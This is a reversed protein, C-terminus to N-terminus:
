LERRLFKEITLVTRKYDTAAEGGKRLIYSPHKVELTPTKYSYLCTEEFSLDTYKEAIKGLLILVKPRAIMNLHELREKCAIVEPELPERFTTGDDTPMCGVVNTVAFTFRKGVRSFSDEIIKDLLKGARGVFPEGIVNESPGPGEGIFLIQCPLTGRALVHKVALEGLPCRSCKNWNRRHLNWAKKVRQNKLIPTM